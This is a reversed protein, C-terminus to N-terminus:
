RKPRKPSIKETIATFIDGLGRPQAARPQATPPPAPAAPEAAAPAAPATAPSGPPPATPDVRFETLAEAFNTGGYQAYGSVTLWMRQEDALRHPLQLGLQAALPKRGVDVLTTVARHWDTVNTVARQYACIAVLLSVGALVLPGVHLRAPDVTLWVTVASATSVVALLSSAAVTGIFFEVNQRADQINELLEQPAVAVLGFWLTMTELGYWDRGYAEFARIRNGLKTPLALQPDHPYHTTVTLVGRPRSNRRRRWPLFLRASREALREASATRAAGLEREAAALEVEFQARLQANEAAAVIDASIGLCLAEAALVRQEAVLLRLQTRHTETRRRGLWGWGHYGELVGYSVRNNLALVLSILATGGLAVWLGSIGLDTLRERLTVIVPVRQVSEYGVVIYLFVAAATPVVWTFLMGVFARGTTFSKLLEGV